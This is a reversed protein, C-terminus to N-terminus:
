AAFIDKGIEVRENTEAVGAAAQQVPVITCEEWIGDAYGEERVVTFQRSASLEIGPVITSTFFFLSTRDAPVLQKLM